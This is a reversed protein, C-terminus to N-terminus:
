ASLNVEVFGSCKQMIALITCIDATLAVMDPLDPM